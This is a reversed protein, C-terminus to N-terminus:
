EDRVMELEALLEKLLGIPPTNEVPEEFPRIQPWPKSLIGPKLTYVRFSVETNMLDSYLSASASHEREADKVLAEDGNAAVLAEQYATIGKADDKLSEKATSVAKQISKVTRRFAFDTELDLYPLISSIAREISVAIRFPYSKEM